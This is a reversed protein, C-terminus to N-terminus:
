VGKYKRRTAIGGRIHREAKNEELVGKVQLYLTRNFAPLRESLDKHVTSKSVGFKKAAGRVTAKNEIIYLALRCAREEINGKM